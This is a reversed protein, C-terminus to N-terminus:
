EESKLYYGGNRQAGVYEVYDPLKRKLSNKIIDMTAAPYRSRVSELLEKIRIGPREKIARLMELEIDGLRDDIFNDHDNVPDVYNQNPLTLIFFNGSPNFDPQKKAGEYAQLIRPIGMGFNEIFHLKDLIHVLGPNRYTQVGDMIQEITAQYISGPNTIRVKDDFFEIKINSRIFYNCHCFANLIGERLSVGPYSIIEKRQWSDRSIIASVDNYNEVIELM